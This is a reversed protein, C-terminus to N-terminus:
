NGIEVVDGAMLPPDATKGDRISRLNFEKVTLVGKDDKRRILGKKLSGKPGGAAAVAQYLTQGPMLDKQGPYVVNGAVFYVGRTSPGEVFEISNGPYVLVRDASKDTLSYTEPKLLPARTIVARSATPQVGSEAMIVFLPIAERQLSREGPRDVLGTVTVKHSGYERVSVDVQPDAFLTIRGAIERAVAAPTKDAVIIEGGALALDVTGSERVTYYGHGQSVNKVEILLVDGVGIRYAETPATSEILPPSVNQRRPTDAAAATVM